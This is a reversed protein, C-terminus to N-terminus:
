ATHGSPVAKAFSVIFAFRRMGSRCCVAVRRDARPAASLSGTM